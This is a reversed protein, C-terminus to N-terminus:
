SQSQRSTLNKLGNRCFREKVTSNLGDTQVQTENSFQERPSDAIAQSMIGTMTKVTLKCIHNGVMRLVGNLLFKRTKGNTAVLLEAGVTDNSSTVSRSIADNKFIGGLEIYLTNAIVM